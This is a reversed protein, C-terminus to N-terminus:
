IHSFILTNLVAMSEICLKQAARKRWQKIVTGQARILILVKKQAPIWGANRM